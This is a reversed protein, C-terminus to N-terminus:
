QAGAIQRLLWRSARTRGRACRLVGETVSQLTRKAEATILAGHCLFIKDFDWSALRAFSKAAAEADHTYLRFEPSAVPRRGVGFLRAAARGWASTTSEDFNEM